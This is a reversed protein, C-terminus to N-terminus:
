REGNRIMVATDPGASVCEGDPVASVRKVARYWFPFFNKM